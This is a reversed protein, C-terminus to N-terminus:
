KIWFNSGDSIFSINEYQSAIEATSDGVITQGAIGSCTVTYGTSDSKTINVEGGPKIAADPLFVVTGSLPAPMLVYDNFSVGSYNDSGDLVVINYASGSGSFGSGAVIGSLTSEDFLHQITGDNRRLPM